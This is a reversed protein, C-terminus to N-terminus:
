RKSGVNIGVEGFTPKCVDCESKENQDASGSGGPRRDRIGTSNPSCSKYSAICDRFQLGERGFENAPVNNLLGRDVRAQEFRVIPLSLPPLNISVM